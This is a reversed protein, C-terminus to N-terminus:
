VFDATGFIEDSWIKCTIEFGPISIHSTLLVLRLCGVPTMGHYLYDGVKEVVDGFAQCYGFFFKGDGDLVDFATVALKNVVYDWGVKNNTEGGKGENSDREKM